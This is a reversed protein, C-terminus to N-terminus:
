KIARVKLEFTENTKAWNPGLLQEMADSELIRGALATDLNPIGGPSYSVLKGAGPHIVLEANLLHKFHDNLMDALDTQSQGMGRRTLFMPSESGLASSLYLGWRFNDGARYISIYPCSDTLKIILEDSQNRLDVHKKVCDVYVICLKKYIEISNTVSTQIMKILSDVSSHRDEKWRQQIFAAEPDVFIARFRVHNMLVRKLIKTESDRAMEDLAGGLVVGLLDLKETHYKEDKIAPVLTARKVGLITVIGDQRTAYDFRIQAERREQKEDEKQQAIVFNRVMTDTIAAAILGTGINEFTSQFTANPSWYKIVAVFIIGLLVLIIDILIYHDKLFAFAREFANSKGDLENQKRENDL